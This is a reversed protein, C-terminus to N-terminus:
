ITKQDSGNKARLGWMIARRSYVTATRKHYEAIWYDRKGASALMEATHMLARVAFSQAIWRELPQYQSKRVLATM